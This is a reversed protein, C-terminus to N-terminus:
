VVLKYGFGKVTQIWCPQSPNPEIKNRLLHIYQKVDNDDARNSDPWLHDIIQQHSFVRGPDKALLKLLEFEKPSLAVKKGRIAVNKTRDDIRCPGVNLVQNDDIVRTRRMIAQIRAELEDIQFPKRLFDDAGLGLGKVANEPSDLGTILLVPVTSQTRIADLVSWGDLGPLLIDLLVVDPMTASFKELAEVGDCATIVEHQKARFYTQLLRLIDPEDEVILMKM